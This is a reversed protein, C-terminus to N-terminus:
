HAGLSGLLSQIANQGFGILDLKKTMQFLFFGMVAFGLLIILPQYQQLLGMKMKGMGQVTGQQWDAIAQKKNLMKRVKPDDDWSNTFDLPDLPRRSNSRYDSIRDWGFFTWVLNTRGPEVDYLNGDFEVNADTAKVRKKIQTRDVRRFTCLIKNKKSYISLFGIALFTILFM